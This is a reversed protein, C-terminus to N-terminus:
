SSGDAVCAPPSSAGCASRRRRTSRRPNAASPSPRPSWHDARPRRAAATDFAADSQFVFVADPNGQADLILDGTLALAATSHYVGPALVLGALDTIIEGTPTRAKLDTYAIM